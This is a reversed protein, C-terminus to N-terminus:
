CPAKRWLLTRGWLSLPALALGGAVALPPLGLGIGGMAVAGMLFLRAPSMLGAAWAGRGEEFLARLFFYSVLRGAAVAAPGVALGLGWRWDFALGLGVGLPVVALFAEPIGVLAARLM